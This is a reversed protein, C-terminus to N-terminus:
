EGEEEVVNSKKLKKKKNELIKDEIINEKVRENWYLMQPTLKM